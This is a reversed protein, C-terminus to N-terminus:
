KYPIEQSLSIIEISSKLISDTQTLNIDYVSPLRAVIFAKELRTDVLIYEQEGTNHIECKLSFRNDINEIVDLPSYGCMTISKAICKEFLSKFRNTVEAHIEESVTNNIDM